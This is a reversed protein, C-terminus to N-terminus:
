IRKPLITALMSSDVAQARTRSNIFTGNLKSIHFHPFTLTDQITFGENRLSDIKIKPAFVRINGKLNYLESQKLLFVPQASYFEFAFEPILESFTYVPETQNNKKLFSAAKMGSQYNFIEPYILSNMFLGSILVASFSRGFINVLQNGPFFRYIIFVLASIGFSILVLGHLGFIVALIIAFSFFLFYLINQVYLIVRRYVRDDLNMLFHSVMICLFPYLINLYHPLQFKSLSFVIFGTVFIVPCIYDTNSDVPKSFNKIRSVILLIVFVSWPLFSWILTHTYFLLNGEGKIPGTNLFRGFQSDWFFFRIGSVHTHGYLLKEPHRDFQIYLCILEPTIFLILLLIALWWRPNRFESWRKKVIWEAVFGSAVIAAIFIGKAMVAAALFLSAPIIFIWKNEKYTRYYFYAAAVILGTLYPESRVDNNSIILHEVALYILVSLRATQTNYLKKSWVYIYYAGSLWFLFAPFKYAFGNIGFLRFSLATVWFPFHPKDLWDKGQVKLNVYDGSLVMTKSITAYLAGDPEMVPLLLGSANVLIGSLLLWYFWKDLWFKWDAYLNAKAYVSDM